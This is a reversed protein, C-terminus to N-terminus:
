SYQEIVKGCAKDLMQFVREFGDGAGYYPDPVNENYGPQWFNMILHVKDEQEKSSAHRMISRYNASDMAMILDYRDLDAAEFQRARQGSIDIQHRAAVEVSRPDPSEGVHWYGTGASDVQWDLQRSSIKEQLIGEALPSRCINGLCVMLIKM